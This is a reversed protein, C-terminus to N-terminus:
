GIHVLKVNAVKAHARYFEDSPVGYDDLFPRLRRHAYEPDRAHMPFELLILNTEHRAVEVLAASVMRDDARSQEEETKINGM